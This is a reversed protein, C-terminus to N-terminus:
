SRVRRDGLHSCASASYRYFLLAAHSLRGEVNVEDKFSRENSRRRNM